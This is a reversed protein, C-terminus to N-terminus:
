HRIRWAIPLAGFYEFSEAGTELDMPLLSEHLM